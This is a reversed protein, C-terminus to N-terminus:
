FKQFQTSLPILISKYSGTNHIYAAQNRYKDKFTWNNRIPSHIFLEAPSAKVGWTTVTPIPSTRQMRRSWRMNLVPYLQDQVWKKHNLYTCLLIKLMAYSSLYIIQVCTKEVFSANSLRYHKSELIKNSRTIRTVKIIHISNHDGGYSNQSYSPQSPHAFAQSVTHYYM